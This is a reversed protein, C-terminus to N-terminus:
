VVCYDHVRLELTMAWPKRPRGAEGEVSSPASRWQLYQFGV